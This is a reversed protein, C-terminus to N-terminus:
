LCCRIFLFARVPFTPPSKLKGRFSGLDQRELRLPSDEPLKTNVHAYQLAKDTNTKDVYM